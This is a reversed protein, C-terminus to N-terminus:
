CIFLRFHGQLLFSFFKFNLFLQGNPTALWGWKPKPTASGGGVPWLPWGGGGVLTTEAVGLPNPPPSWGWKSWPPPGIPRCHCGGGILIKKLFIIPSMKPFDLTFNPYNQCIQHSPRSWGVTWFSPIKLCFLWKAFFYICQWNKFM